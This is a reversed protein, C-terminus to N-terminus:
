KKDVTNINKLKFDKFEQETFMRYTCSKVLEGKFTIIVVEYNEYGMMNGLYPLKRLLSKNPQYYIWIEGNAGTQRNDPSGLYSLVDKKSSQEPTVLSADSALHRIYHGSACGAIASGIILLICCTFSRFASFM